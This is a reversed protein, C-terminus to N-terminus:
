KNFAEKFIPMLKELTPEDGVNHLNEAQIAQIEVTIYVPQEFTYVVGNSEYMQEISTPMKLGNTFYKKESDTIKNLFLKNKGAKIAYDMLYYYGEAEDEAKAFEWKYENEVVSTTLNVEDSNLIALWGDIFDKYGDDSLQTGCLGCSRVGGTTLIDSAPLTQKCDNCWNNISHLYEKIEFHLKVRVYMPNSREIKNFSIEGFMDDGPIADMKLRGDGFFSGEKDIEISGISLREEKRKVDSYYTLTFCLSLTAVVIITAIIFFKQNWTLGSKKVKEEKM